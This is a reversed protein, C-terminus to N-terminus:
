IPAKGAWQKVTAHHPAWARWVDTAWALVAQEHEAPTASLTVDLVTLAGAFSPPTLWRFDDAQRVIGAIRRTAYIPDLGQEFILHLSVLHVCVSQISRRSEVGPHQVAYADVTLRHCPPNRLEDYERALVDGYARWCGPSAGIYPHTPGDITPVIAGCGPCPHLSTADDM